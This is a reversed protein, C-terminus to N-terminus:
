NKDDVSPKQTVEGTELNIRCDKGYKNLLKDEEQVFAQKLQKIINLLADQQILTDALRVKAQNFEKLSKRLSDLEDKTLKKAM